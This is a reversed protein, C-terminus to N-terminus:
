FVQPTRPRSPSRAVWRPPMADGNPLSCGQVALRLCLARDRLSSAAIVSENESATAYKTAALFFEFSPLSWSNALAEEQTEEQRQSLSLGV